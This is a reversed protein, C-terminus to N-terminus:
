IEHTITENFYPKNNFLQNFNNVVLYLRNFFLINVANTMSANRRSYSFESSSVNSLLNSVRIFFSPRLKSDSGCSYFLYIFNISKLNVKM